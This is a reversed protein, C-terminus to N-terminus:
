IFTNRLFHFPNSAVTPYGISLQVGLDPAGTCFVASRSVWIQSDRTRFHSHHVHGCMLNSLCVVFIWLSPLSVLLSAALTPPSGCYDEPKQLWLSCICHFWPAKGQTKFKITTPNQKTKCKLAMKTIIFGIIFGIIFSFSTCSIEADKTDKPPSQTQSPVQSIQVFISYILTGNPFRLCRSVGPFRCFLQINIKMFLFKIPPAHSTVTYLVKYYLCDNNTIPLTSLTKGTAIWFVEQNTLNGKESEHFLLFIQTLQELPVRRLQSVGLGCIENSCILLAFHKHKVVKTEWVHLSFLFRSENLLLFATVRGCVLVWIKASRQLITLKFFLQLNIGM